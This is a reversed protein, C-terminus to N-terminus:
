VARWVTAQVGSENARTRGTDHIKGLALLESLRPRVSLVSKNLAAAAEDATLSADRLLGLVQDRLTPARPKVAEAARKSTGRKKWGPNKPYPADFPLDPQNM